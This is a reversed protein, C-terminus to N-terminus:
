VAQTIKVTHTILTFVFSKIFLSHSFTRIFVVGNIRYELDAPLCIGMWHHATNTEYYINKVLCVFCRHVDSYINLLHCCFLILISLVKLTWAVGMVQLASNKYSAPSGTYTKRRKLTVKLTYTWCIIWFEVASRDQSNGSDKFTSLVHKNNQKIELCLEQNLFTNREWLSTILM